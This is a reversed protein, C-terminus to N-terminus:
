LTTQSDFTDPSTQPIRAGLSLREAPRTHSHIGRLNGGEARRSCGPLRDCTLETDAGTRGLSREVAQGFVGGM